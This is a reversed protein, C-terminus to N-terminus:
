MEQQGRATQQKVCLGARGHQWKRLDVMANLAACGRLSLPIQGCAVALPQVGECSVSQPQCGQGQVGFLVPHVGDELGKCVLLTRM